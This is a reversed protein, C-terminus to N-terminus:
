IEKMACKRGSAEYKQFLPFQAQQANHKYESEYLQEMFCNFQTNRLINIPDVIYWATLDADKM